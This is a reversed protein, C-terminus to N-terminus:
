YHQWTRTSKKEVCDSRLLCCDHLRKKAYTVPLITGTDLPTTRSEGGSVEEKYAAM